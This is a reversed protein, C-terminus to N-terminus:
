VEKLETVLILAGPHWQQWEIRYLEAAAWDACRHGHNCRDDIRGGDADAEVYDIEVFVAM